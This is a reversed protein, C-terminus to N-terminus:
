IKTLSIKDHFIEHKVKMFIATSILFLFYYSSTRYLILSISPIPASIYFSFLLIYAYELPGIGAVNPLSSAIIYALSSLTYVKALSLSNESLICICFYPILCLWCVKLLHALFIQIMMKLNKMQIRADKALAFMEDKAAMKNFSAPIWNIVKNFICETKNWFM